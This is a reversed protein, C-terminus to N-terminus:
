GSFGNISQRSYYVNRKNAHPRKRSTCKSTVFQKVIRVKASVKSAPSRLQNFFSAFWYIRRCKSSKLFIEEPLYVFKNPVVTIGITHYWHKPM